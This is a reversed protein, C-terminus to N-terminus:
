FPLMLVALPGPTLRLPGPTPKPVPTSSDPAPGENLSRPLAPHPRLRTSSPFAPGHVPTAPAGTGRPATRPDGPIGGTLAPEETAERWRRLEIMQTVTAVTYRSTLTPAHVICTFLDQVTLKNGPHTTLQAISSHRACSDAVGRGAGAPGVAAAKGSDSAGGPPWRPERQAAPLKGASTPSQSVM